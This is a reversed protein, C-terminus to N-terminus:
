ALRGPWRTVDLVTKQRVAPMEIAGVGLVIAGVLEEGAGLQWFTELNRHLLAAGTTWYSALGRAVAGLMLNEIACTTAAYDERDRVPDDPSRLYSVAVVAGAGALMQRLKRIKNASAESGPDAAELRACAVDTLTRLESGCVAAFRWPETRRHNPAWIALDILESLTAPDIPTGDFLKHSRRRRIAEDVHM